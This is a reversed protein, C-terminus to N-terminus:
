EPDYECGLKEADSLNNDEKCENYGGNDLHGSGGGAGGAGGSGGAGGGGSGAVGGGGGSGVMVPVCDYGPNDVCARAHLVTPEVPPPAYVCTVTECEGPSLPISTTMPNGDLCKDILEETDNDYFWLEVGAAVHLMGYNCVEADLHMSGPCFSDDITLSVRLDPAAFVSYDPLNQRFNNMFGSATAGTVKLWNPEEMMPISGDENVNTVHYAHQNWIRRTSVWLDAADAWIRIGQENGSWANEVFVIEANGDNDVDAVIPMELRTHSINEVEILVEGTTGDMIRCYEQDNYVVEASGDGDFDFVSSGTVRSTDDNNRVKWRIGLDSCYAPLPSALCELDAVVYYDAGAIGIEVQGDGDFDAVTPPGGENHGGPLQPIEIVVDDGGQNLPTGDHNLVHAWGGRVVVIEGELDSDFNGTATFGDCSAYSCSGIDMIPAYTWLVTGDHDYLTNGAMVNLYGDLDVDGVANVPGLFGNTGLAGTGLWALTGDEGNLVARGQIVEPMGDADLDAIAPTCGGWNDSNSPYSPQYWDVSLVPTPAAGDVEVSITGLDRNGTGVIEIVGDADVDGVAIHGSNDFWFGSPGGAAAIENAGITFHEVMTGDPECAGSLVRVVGSSDCCGCHPAGCGGQYGYTVFAIDPIDDTDVLGDDNDDTLNIVVPTMVGDNLNPYPENVPGDWACAQVPVFDGFDPIYLCDDDTGGSGGLGAAGGGAGTGGSGGPPQTTGGTGGSGGLLGQGGAGAAAGLGGPPAFALESVCDCGAAWPLAASLVIALAFPRHTKSMGELTGSPAGSVLSM